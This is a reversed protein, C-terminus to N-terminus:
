LRPSKDYLNPLESVSLEISDTESNEDEDFIFSDVLGNEIESLTVKADGKYRDSNQERDIDEFRDLLEPLLINMIAEDYTIDQDYRIGVNELANYIYDILSKNDMKIIMINRGASNCRTKELDLMISRDPFSELDVEKDNISFSPEVGRRKHNWEIFRRQTLKWEKIRRIRDFDM